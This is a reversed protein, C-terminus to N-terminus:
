ALVEEHDAAYECTIKWAATIDDWDIRGDDGIWAAPTMDAEMILRMAEEDNAMYWGLASCTGCCQPCCGQDGIAYLHKIASILLRGHAREATLAVIRANDPTTV